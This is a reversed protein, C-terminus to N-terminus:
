VIQYIQDTKPMDLYRKEDENYLVRDNGDTTRGVIVAPIEERALAGTLGVGDETVMILCGGSLLEYPNLEFFECIEITEQKVPLKKLDIELGVGAGSSMEWLAGFIGGRSVDHMGCVGSKMAIAAEPIVSFYRDYAAAEQIMRVPYRGCLEKQYRRALRVTGELGIWKSVVIDQNAKIGRPCGTRAAEKRGVGTVTLVPEAVAATVETHGGVIEVQCSQCLQETQEMFQRFAAEETEEPLLISLLVGVPEAGAAAVNNLAMPIAYSGLQALPATVPTTSLAIQEGEAFALIACDKGIGAGSIVEDRYTKIQKLVSRKLVNESIKGQRM